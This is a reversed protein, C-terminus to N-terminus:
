RPANWPSTCTPCRAAVNQRSTYTDSCRKHMVTSCRENSCNVAKLVVEQCLVCEPLDMKEFHSRLEFQSRVGFSLFKKRPVSLWLEDVLKCVLVDVEALTMAHSLKNKLNDVSLRDVMKEDSTLIMDFLKKFLEIELDSLTTGLKGIEDTGKNVIGWYLKGDDDSFAKRVEMQMFSVNQNIQTAYDDPGGFNHTGFKANLERILSTVEEDTMVPRTMFNQLLIRHSDSLPMGPM